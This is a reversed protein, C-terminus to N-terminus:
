RFFLKCLKTKVCIISLTGPSYNASDDADLMAELEEDEESEPRPYKRPRGRKRAGPKRPVKTINDMADQKSKALEYLIIGMEDDPM